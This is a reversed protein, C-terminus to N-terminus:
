LLDFFGALAEPGYDLEHNGITIADFAMGKFFNLAAPSQSLSLDYVTGMFYDGSDVVVTPIGQDSNYTRIQDITAAIRSYGGLTTDGTAAGYSASPGTGVVHHHVDTTQLLTFRVTQGDQLGQNSDNSSCGSLGLFVLPLLVCVFMSRKM